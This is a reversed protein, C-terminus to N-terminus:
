EYATSLPDRHGPYGSIRVVIKGKVDLGRLEDYGNTEDIMGYGIFVVPGLINKSVSGGNQVTYDTGQVYHNSLRTGGANTIISLNQTDGPNTRIMPVRQFYSRTGNPQIDGAPVLGTMQFVSAIYDAALFAGRSVAERGETWDSALFTLQAKVLDDTISELGKTKPDNQALATVTLTTLVALAVIMTTFIKKM